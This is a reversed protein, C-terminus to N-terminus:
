RWFEFVMVCEHICCMIFITASTFKMQQAKVEHGLIMDIIQQLNQVLFKKFNFNFIIIYM